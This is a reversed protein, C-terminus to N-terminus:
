DTRLFGCLLTDHHARLLDPTLSERGDAVVFQRFLRSGAVAATPRRSARRVVTTVGV